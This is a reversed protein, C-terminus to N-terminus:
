ASPSNSLPSQMAPSSSPRSRMTSGDKGKQVDPGQCLRAFQHNIQWGDAALEREVMASAICMMTELARSGWGGSQETCPAVQRHAPGDWHLTHATPFPDDRVTPPYPRMLRWLLCNPSPNGKRRHPLAGRAFERGPRDTRVNQRFRGAHPVDQRVQRHRRFPVVEKPVAVTRRLCWPKCRTPASVGTGLPIPMGRALSPLNIRGRLMGESPPASGDGSSLM